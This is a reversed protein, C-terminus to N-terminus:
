KTRVRASSVSHEPPPVYPGDTSRAAALSGVAPRRDACAPWVGRRRDAARRGPEADCAAATGAGWGSGTIGKSSQIQCWFPFSHAIPHAYPSVLPHLHTLPSPLSATAKHFMKPLLGCDVAQCSFPVRPPSPAVAAPIWPAYPICRIALVICEMLTAVVTDCRGWNRQVQLALAQIGPTRQVEKDVKILFYISPLLPSRNLGM